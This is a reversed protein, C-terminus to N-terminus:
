NLKFAQAYSEIVLKSGVKGVLVGRAHSSSIVVTEPSDIPRSSRADIGSAIDPPIIKITEASSATSSSMELLIAPTLVRVQLGPGSLASDVVDVGVFQSKPSSGM